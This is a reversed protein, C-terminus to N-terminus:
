NEKPLDDVNPPIVISEGNVIQTEDLPPKYPACALLTLSLLVILTKM